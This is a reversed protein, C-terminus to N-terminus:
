IRENENKEGDKNFLNRLYIFSKTENNYSELHEYIKKISLEENLNSVNHYYSIHLHEAYNGGTNGVKALKDGPAIMKGKQIDAEYVSLHALLYYDNTNLHNIILVNGYNDIWGKAIVKGFVFSYIDTTSSGRFDVGEHFFKYRSKSYGGVGLYNENFLGTICAFKVNKKESALYEEYIEEGSTYKPAFCPNSMVVNVGGNSDSPLDILVKGCYPNFEQLTKKTYYHLFKLPHFFYYQTETTGLIKEKNTKNIFFCNELYQFLKPKMEDTIGWYGVDKIYDDKSSDWSAPKEWMSPCKILLRNLQNYLTQNNETYVLDEITETINEQETNKLEEIKLNTKDCIENIDCVYDNVHDELLIFPPLDFINFRKSSEVNNFGNTSEVSEEYKNTSKANEIDSEKIFYYTNNAQFRIYDISAIKVFKVNAYFIIQSDIACTETLELPILNISNGKYVITDPSLFCPNDKSSNQLLDSFIIYNTKRENIFDNLKYEDNEFSFKIEKNKIFKLKGITKNEKAIIKTIKSKDERDKREIKVKVEQEQIILNKGSLQFDENIEEISYLPVLEGKGVSFYKYNINDEIFDANKLYTENKSKYLDSTSSIEILENTVTGDINVRRKKYKLQDLKPFFLEIHLEFESSNNTNVEINNDFIGIPGNYENPLDLSVDTSVSGISYNKKYVSNICDNLNQKNLKVYAWFYSNGNENQLATYTYENEDVIKNIKILAYYEDNKKVIEYVENENIASEPCLTVGNTNNEISDYTKVWNKKPLSTITNNNANRLDYLDLVSFYKKINQSDSVYIFGKQSSGSLDLGTAVKKVKYQYYSGTTNIESLINLNDGIFCKFPSNVNSTSDVNNYIGNTIGIQNKAYKSIINLDDQTKLAIFNNVSLKTNTIIYFDSKDFTYDFNSSNYFEFQIEQILSKKDVNVRKLNNPAFEFKPYLHSADYFVQIKDLNSTESCRAIYIVKNSTKKTLGLPNGQSQKLFFRNNNDKCYVFGNETDSIPYRGDRNLYGAIITTEKDSYYPVSRCEESSVSNSKLTWKRCFLPRFITNSDKKKYPLDFEKDSIIKNSSLGSYLIFFPVKEAGFYHRMLVFSCSYKTGFPNDLYDECIRYASIEGPILPTLLNYRDTAKLHIGTHWINKKSLPWVGGKAQSEETYYNGDKSENLGFPLNINM